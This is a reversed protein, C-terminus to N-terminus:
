IKMCKRIIGFRVYAHAIVGRVESEQHFRNIVTEWFENDDDPSPMHHSKVLHM